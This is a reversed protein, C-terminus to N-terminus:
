LLILNENCLLMCDQAINPLSQRFSIELGEITHINV